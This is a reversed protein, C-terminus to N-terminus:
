ANGAGFKTIFVLKRIPSYHSYNPLGDTSFTPWQVAYRISLLQLKENYAEEATEPSLEPHFARVLADYDLEEKRMQASDFETLDYLNLSGLATGLILIGDDGPTCIQTVEAESRLVRYVMNSGVSYVVIVYIQEGSVPRSLVYAM